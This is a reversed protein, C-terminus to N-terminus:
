PSRRRRVLALAGLVLWLAGLASGYGSPAITASGCVGTAVTPPPDGVGAGTSPPPATGGGTSGGTTGGGTSTSGGGNCEGPNDAVSGSVGPNSIDSTREPTGGPTWSGCPDGLEQGTTQGDGDADETALKAWWTEGPTADIPKVAEGFKNLTPPTGGLHCPACSNPAVAASNPIYAVFGDRAEAPLSQALLTFAVATSAIFRTRM